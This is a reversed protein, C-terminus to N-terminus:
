PWLPAPVCLSAAAFESAVEAAAFTWHTDGLGNLSAAFSSLDLNRRSRRRAHSRSGGEGEFDSEFSM